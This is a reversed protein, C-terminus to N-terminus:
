SPSSASAWCCLSRWRWGRPSSRCSRTASSAAFPRGRRGAPRRPLPSPRIPPPPACRGAKGKPAKAAPKKEASKAAAKAVPKAPSKGASKAVSKANAKAAPKSKAAAKSAAKEVPKEAVSKAATKKAVPKAEAKKVVPKKATKAKPAPAEGADDDDNAAKGSKKAAGKAPKEEVAVPGGMAGVPKGICDVLFRLNDWDLEGEDGKPTELAKPIKAFRPDNMLLRFAEGGVAGKGLEEHRDVRSGLGKKSDNVHIARLWKFGVVRDFENWTANWAAETRLDYGAALSHCTDFCVGLREKPDTQAIIDRLHEFKCGIHSGQGATNELWVQAKLNKTREFLVNLSKAIRAVCAEEGTGLHAGPHAVVGPLGLAECRQLEDVMADISQLRLKEDPAGLNILYSNHAFCFPNGAAARAKQFKEGEDAELPKGEWRNNNKVFIQVVTAGLAAGREVALWTGGAISMHAGILTGKPVAVPPLNVKESLISSKKAM